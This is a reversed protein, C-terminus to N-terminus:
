SRPNPPKKERNALRLRVANENTAETEAEELRSRLVLFTWGVLAAALVIVWGPAGLSLTTVLLAVAILAILIWLNRRLRASGWPDAPTLIPEATHNEGYRALLIEWEPDTPDRVSNLDPDRSIWWERGLQDTSEALAKALHKYSRRRFRRISATRARAARSTPDVEAM